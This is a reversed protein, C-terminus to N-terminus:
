LVIARTLNNFYVQKLWLVSMKLLDKIVAFLTRFLKQLMPQCVTLVQYIQVSM